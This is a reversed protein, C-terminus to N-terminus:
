AARKPRKPGAQSPTSSGGRLSRGSPPSVREPSWGLIRRERIGPSSEASSVVAPSSAALCRGRSLQASSVAAPSSAALSRAPSPLVALIASGTLKSASTPSQGVGHLPSARHSGHGKLSYSPSHGVSKPPSKKPSGVGKLSSTPSHGVGQTPSGKPPSQGKALSSRGSCVSEQSANLSQPSRPSGALGDGSSCVSQKCTLRHSVDRPRAALKAKTYKRGAKAEASADKARGRKKKAAGGKARAARASGKPAPSAARAVLAEKLGCRLMAAALLAQVAAQVEAYQAAEARIYEKSSHAVSIHMALPAPEEVPSIGGLHELLQRTCHLREKYEMQDSATLRPCLVRQHGANGCLGCKRRARQGGQTEAPFPCQAVDHGPLWCGSCTRVPALLESEEGQGEQEARDDHGDARFRKLWRTRLATPWLREAGKRLEEKVVHLERHLTIREHELTLQRLRREAEEEERQGTAAELAQREEKAATRRREVELALEEAHLRQEHEKTARTRCANCKFFVAKSPSIAWGRRSMDAWFAAPPHVRRFDPPFCDYCLATPCEICQILLGGCSSKGRSCQACIHWKCSWQCGNRPIGAADDALCTAHYAKPCVDCFVDLALGGLQEGCNQKSALEEGQGCKFCTKCYDLQMKKVLPKRAVEATDFKVTPRVIRGSSTRTVAAEEAPQSSPSAPPPSRTSSAKSPLRDREDYAVDVFLSPLEAGGMANSDDEDSHQGAEEKIGHSPLPRRVRELLRSLTEGSIDEGTFRRLVKEGQRLLELVEDASLRESQVPASRAGGELPTADGAGGIFQHGMRLKFERRHFLREEVGWEQMMRYVTVARCQGIRHSRDIAQTDVHPNWDQDFVVVHNASALNIGLGGARTSILYVFCDEEASNFDRVDLERLVTHTSGDLRLTRWGRRACFAELMDLCAHFQSFILVKHPLPAAEGATAQDRAAPAVWPRMEDPCPDGNGTICRGLAFSQQATDATSADRWRYVYEVNQAHLHTLLKDVFVLKGSWSVEYEGADKQEALHQLEAEPIGFSRLDARDAESAGACVPHACTMRLRFLLKLLARLGRGATARRCAVLSRYWSAQQPSMPLWIDHITKPPLDVADEKLRRMLLPPLLAKVQEALAAGAEGSIAEEDKISKFVEPERALVDPWVFRLLAFLEQINNQLPTGTLLLRGTCRVGDLAERVRSAQNKVRHAEDLVLAAWQHRHFYDETNAVSDYSTIIVDKTGYWIADDDLAHKREKASGCLKAVSLHPVFRRAERCWNSVCTLPAVILFPGHAAGSARLYSLCALAQVTKGLGMDDALIGGCRNHFARILWNVGATQHAKLCTGEALINRRAFTLLNVTPMDSAAPTLGYRDVHAEKGDAVSAVVYGTPGTQAIVVAAYENGDRSRAQVSEGIELLGRHKAEAERRLRTLASRSALGEFLGLRQSLFADRRREAARKVQQDQRAASVMSDEPILETADPCADKMSERRCIPCQWEGSPASSALHVGNSLVKVCSAHFSKPCTDCLLLRGGDQCVDCFDKNAIAQGVSGNNRMGVAISANSASAVKFVRASGGVQAYLQARYQLVEIKSAGELVHRYLVRCIRAAAARNGGAAPVTTQVAINKIKFSYRRDREDWRIFTEADLYDDADEESGRADATEELAACAGVLADGMVSPAALATIPLNDEDSFADLEVTAQATIQHDRGSRGVTRVSVSDVSMPDLEVSPAVFPQHDDAVAHVLIGPQSAVISVSDVSMLGLEVSPGLVHQHDDSSARVHRGPQGVAGVGFHEGSKADIEMSTEAPTQREDYGVVLASEEDSVLDLDFHLAPLAPAAAGSSEVLEVVVM